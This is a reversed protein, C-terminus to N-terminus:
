CGMIWISLLCTQPCRRPHGPCRGSLGAGRGTFALREPRQAPVPCGLQLAAPESRPRRWGRGFLPTKKQGEGLLLTEAQVKCSVRGTAARSCGLGKSHTFSCSAQAAREGDEGGAEGEDRGASRWQRPSRWGGVPGGQHAGPLPGCLTTLSHSDGTGPVGLTSQPRARAGLGECRTAVKAPKKLARGHHPLERRHKGAAVRPLRRSTSQEM